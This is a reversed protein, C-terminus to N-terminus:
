TQNIKAKKLFWWDLQHYVKSQGFKNGSRIGGPFFVLCMGGAELQVGTRLSKGVCTGASHGTGVDEDEFRVKSLKPGKECLPFTKKLVDISAGM